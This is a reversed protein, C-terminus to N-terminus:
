VQPPLRGALWQRIDAGRQRRKRPSSALFRVLRLLCPRVRAVTRGGRVPVRLRAVRLDARRWGCAPGTPARARSPLRVRMAAATQAQVAWAVRRARVPADAGERARCRLDAVRLLPKILTFGQEMRWRARRRRM